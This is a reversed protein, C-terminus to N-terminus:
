VENLTFGALERGRTGVRMNNTLRSMDKKKPGIASAPLVLHHTYPSDMPNEQVLHLAVLSHLHDTDHCEQKSHVLADSPCAGAV